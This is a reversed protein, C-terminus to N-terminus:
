SGARWSGFWRALGERTSVQPRYECGVWGTYGLEDLLGFLWPYHLEGVDPEHRGPVGAIQVHAIRPFGERLRTSVDGEVIQCHYLDMQLRVCPSDVEDLVSWAQAQTNLFYGPIDRTNIPEILGTLGHAALRPAARRLNAVLTSRHEDRRSPDAMLGSMLHLRTCGIALAYDIAQDLGREFVAQAGPVAAFGREGRAWDGPPTNFLVQELGNDRLAARVETVPYEYPFLCEVGRFGDAAAAEFREMFPLEAYMMSLNAAFRPM